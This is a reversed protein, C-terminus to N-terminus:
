VTVVPVGLDVCAESAICGRRLLGLRPLVVFDGVAYLHVNFKGHSGIILVKYLYVHITHAVVLADICGM